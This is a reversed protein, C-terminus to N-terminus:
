GYIYISNSSSVHIVELSVRCISHTLYIVIYMCIYQKYAQNCVTHIQIQIVPNILLIFGLSYETFMTRLNPLIYIYIYIHLPPWPSDLSIVGSNM